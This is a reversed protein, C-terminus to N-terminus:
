QLTLEIPQYTLCSICVADAKLREGLQSRITNVKGLLNRYQTEAHEKEGQTQELQAQVGGVEEEHKGQIQELSRRLQAVEDRLATREKALADLRAEPNASLALSMNSQATQGLSTLTGLHRTKAEYDELNRDDAAAAEDFEPPITDHSTSNGGNAAINIESSSERHLPPETIATPTQPDQQREGVDENENEDEVKIGNPKGTEGNAKSKNGIKKKKHKKSKLGVISVEM